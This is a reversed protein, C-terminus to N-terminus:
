SLCFAVNDTLMKFIIRVLKGACHGLASYHNKGQTRKTVYFSRFVANNRVVNHAAFVLAYRLVRSGRKSMRTHAANFSGSQCVSPDLGAFALLKSPSSFRHIDGIEGLIMGAEVFSMGPITLIVSDLAKVITEIETEVDHIQSDLLEVQEITQTIQISISSDSSGVSKQALVRLEQAKDKKFHGHSTTELLHALHTMHMSAIKEPSSAEKLIAYVSKHHIGSFFYQLEPFAQDLFSTLKIKASTRQKMLVQRFRGLNKLHMLDIDQKDYFRHPQVMLTKAILFTDVRDTKTKRINNKRMVSTQIPNIVCVSFRRSVLFEVLNNGYHATSELGIVLSAPDFQELKSTLLRFGDSDNSFKFPEVLVEGDSSIVSAFHNLKAIDIGVYIMIREERTNISRCGHVIMM